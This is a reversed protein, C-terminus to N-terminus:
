LCMSIQDERVIEISSKRPIFARLTTVAVRTGRPLQDTPCRRLSPGTVLPRGLPRLRGRRRLMLHSCSLAWHEYPVYGVNVFANRMRREWWRQQPGPLYPQVPTGMVRDWTDWTCPQCLFFHWHIASILCCSLVGPVGRVLRPLMLVRPVRPCVPCPVSSM